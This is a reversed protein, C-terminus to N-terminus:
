ANPKKKAFIPEGAAPIQDPPMGQTLFARLEEDTEDDLPGESTEDNEEHSAYTIRTGPGEERHVWWLTM